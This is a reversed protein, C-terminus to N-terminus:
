IALLTCPTHETGGFVPMLEQSTSQVGANESSYSQGVTYAAHQQWFNRSNRRVEVLQSPQL